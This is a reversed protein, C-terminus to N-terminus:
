RRQEREAVELPTPTPEDEGAVEILLWELWETVGAFRALVRGRPDRVVVYVDGTPRPVVAVTEGLESEAIVIGVSAEDRGPPSAGQALLDRHGLLRLSGYRSRSLHEVGDHSRLVREYDRPMPVGRADFVRHVQVLLDWSAPPRPAVKRTRGEAADRLAKATIIQEILLYMRGTEM